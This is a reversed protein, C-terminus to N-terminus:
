ISTWILAATTWLSFVQIYAMYYSMRLEPHNWCTWTHRWVTDLVYWGDTFTITFYFSVGQKRKWSCYYALYVMGGCLVIHMVWQIIKQIKLSKKIEEETRIESESKNVGTGLITPLQISVMWQRVLLIYM